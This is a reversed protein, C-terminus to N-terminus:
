STARAGAPRALDVLTTFYLTLVGVAVLAAALPGSDPYRFLDKLPEDALLLLGACGGVRAWAPAAPRLLYVALPVVLLYYHVWALKATSVSLAGGLGVLALDELRTPEAGARRRLVLALVLAAGLLASLALGTDGLGAEELLRVLALNGKSVPSDYQEMLEGLVARWDNWAGAGGFWHSSLGFAALAGVLAAPVQRALREWRGLVIWGLGLALAPFALNPKFMVALGLLFGAALQWAGQRAGLLVVGCVAALQLRNVNGVRMDSLTPAFFTLLFAVLIAGASWSLGALRSLGLLTGAFVLLSAHQFRGLDTDYDGGATWGFLTYLWPTSYTELDQRRSAALGRRQSPDASQPGQEGAARRAWEQGLRLREASSWVNGTDAEHAAQGVAWFQYFDFCDWRMSFVSAQGLAAILLALALLAVGSPTRTPAPPQPQPSEEV